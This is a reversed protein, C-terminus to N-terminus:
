FLIAEEWQYEWGIKYRSFLSELFKDVVENTNDYLM